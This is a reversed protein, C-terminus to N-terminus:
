HATNLPFTYDHISLLQKELLPQPQFYWVPEVSYM